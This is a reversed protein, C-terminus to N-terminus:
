WAVGPRGSLSAELGSNVIKRGVSVFSERRQGGEWIVTCCPDLGPHGACSLQCADWRFHQQCPIGTPCFLSLASTILFFMSKISHISFSGFDVSSGCSQSESVRQELTLGEKRGALLRPISLFVPAQHAGESSEGPLSNLHMALEVCVMEM